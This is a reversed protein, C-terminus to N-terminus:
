VSESEFRRGCGAFISCAQDEREVITDSWFLFCKRVSYVGVHIEMQTKKRGRKQRGTCEGRVRTWVCDQSRKNKSSAKINGM